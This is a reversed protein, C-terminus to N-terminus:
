VMPIKKEVCDAAVVEADITKFGRPVGASITYVADATWTEASRAVTTRVHRAFGFGRILTYQAAACKAYELVAQPGPSNSPKVKFQVLDTQLLRTVVGQYVPAAMSMKSSPVSTSQCATLLATLALAVMAPSIAALYQM